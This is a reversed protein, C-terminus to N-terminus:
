GANKIASMGGTHVGIAKVMGLDTGMQDGAPHWFFFLPPPRLNWVKYGKLGLGEYPSSTLWHM